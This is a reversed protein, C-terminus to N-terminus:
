TAMGLSPCSVYTRPISSDWSWSSPKTPQLTASDRGSMPKRMKRMKRTSIKRRPKEAKKRWSGLPCNKKRSTRATWRRYVASCSFDHVVFQFEWSTCGPIPALVTKGTSGKMPQQTTAGPPVVTAAVLAQGPLFSLFERDWDFTIAPKGTAPVVIVREWFAKISTGHDWWMWGSGTVKHWGADFWQLGLWVRVLVWFWSYRTSTFLEEVIAPWQSHMDTRM